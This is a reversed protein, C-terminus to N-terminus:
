LAEFEELTLGAQRLIGKIPVIRVERHAPVTVSRRGTIELRGFKVHSGEQSVVTFGAAELRRRIERYPLPRLPM